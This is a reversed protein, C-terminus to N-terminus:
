KFISEDIEEGETEYEQYSLPYQIKSEEVNGCECIYLYKYWDYVYKGDEGVHGKYKFDRNESIRKGCKGCYMHATYNATIKHRKVM